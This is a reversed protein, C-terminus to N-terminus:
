SHLAMKKFHENTKILKEFSGQDVLKGKNIFFIHDCEEVTKYRHAIIIITKLGKLKLISEMILKETIGDLASTAEDFVIINSTKYLARAIGLRQRQGGSLKIGREGIKTNINEDLNEVFDNLQALKIVKKLKEFDIDKYLTGFAINEAITMESLFISQPVYSFNNQWARCNEKNIITNDSKLRGQQPHILGLLIDVLTSKGAGSSGVIGIMSNLPIKINLQTIAPEEKSPYKFTVNDFSIDKIPRIIKECIKNTEIEKSISSNLDKKITDFASINGKITTLSVYIFQFAPLLKFGSLAYVSIIPLIIGLDREHVTILYLLFLIILAFAIFEVIYRPALSLVSNNGLSYSLLRSSEKFQNIFHDSSGSLIIEKIGGFANNMLSFRTESIHSINKGNRHLKTKVGKYIIFYIIIFISIGILCIIPDYILFFIIISLSLVIRANMQIFPVLVHSNLRTTESAIKKTLESSTASVHYLWSQNLYYAYLRDSLETGIRNAFMSLKWTTFTSIITSISLLLIMIIGLFFLFKTESQIGTIEYVEAILTDQQLLTINGVLSMFPVISAIGIIEVFTMSIVLFQLLLFKKRQQPTLLQFIEKISKYLM